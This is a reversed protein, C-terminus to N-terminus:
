GTDDLLPGRSPRLRRRPAPGHGGFDSDDYKDNFAPHILGVPLWLMPLRVSQNSGDSLLRREPLTLRYEDTDWPM